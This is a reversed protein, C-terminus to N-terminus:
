PTTPPDEIIIIPDLHLSANEASIVSYKFRGKVRPRQTSTALDHSLLSSEFPSAGDFAISFKRSTTGAWRVEDASTMTLTDPEVRIATDDVTVLISYTKM